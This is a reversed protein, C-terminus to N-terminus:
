RGEPRVPQDTIIPWYWGGNAHQEVAVPFDPRHHIGSYHAILAPRFANPVLPSSGRHYLRPHWLLVDGRAPTYDVVRADRDIIEQEVLPTLVAETHTPWGPDNVDVVRSIQEFTLRHWRHSGPVFQFVGADPHIDDLAIWVAAYYDGTDAPNLYGDQHWNRLTSTWGTLNLHLGMPEGVTEYLAHALPAYTGIDLLEPCRMYPCADPWGGPRDADLVVLGEPNGKGQLWVGGPADGESDHQAAMVDVASTFGRYGNATAWAAIYANILDDPILGELLVVGDENWDLPGPPPAPRSLDALTTM